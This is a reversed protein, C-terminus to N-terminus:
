GDRAAEDTDALGYDRWSRGPRFGLVSRARACDILSRHGSLPGRRDVDPMHRDVLARTPTESYSDAAAVFAREHGRVDAIAAALFADAADEADIYAWLDLSAEPTTRRPVVERAFSEATQIWPLRLSIATGGTRRCWADVMEEGLWKSLAYVDQPAVPHSEDVPVREIRVPRPAFPLGLVSFSSAYLIRGIGYAEAAAIVNDMLAMNTGFVTEPALGTPRPIAACHVLCDVPGIAAIATERDALDAVHCEGGGEAPRATRDLASVDWGDAVFRRAVHRGLLGAAGTIAVTGPRNRRAGAPADSLNKSDKTM